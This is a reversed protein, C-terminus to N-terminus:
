NKQNKGSPKKEINNNNKLEAKTTKESIAFTRILVIISIVIAGLGMLNFVSTQQSDIKPRSQLTKLEELCIQKVKEKESTIIEASNENYSIYDSYKTISYNNGNESKTQLNAIIRIYTQNPTLKQDTTTTINKNNNDIDDIKTIKSIYRETIEGTTINETQITESSVCEYKSEQYSIIIESNNEPKVPSNVACLLGVSLMITIVFLKVISANSIEKNM